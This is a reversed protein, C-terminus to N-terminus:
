IDKELRMICFTSEEGGILISCSRIQDKNMSLCDVDFDLCYNKVLFGCEPCKRKSDSVCRQHNESCRCLSCMEVYTECNPCEM